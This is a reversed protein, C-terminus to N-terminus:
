MADTSKCDIDDGKSPRSLINWLAQDKAANWEVQLLTLPPGCASGTPRAIVPAPDVFDGRPFPLRIFVTFQTDGSQNLATMVFRQLLKSILLSTHQRRLLYSFSILTDILKLWPIFYLDPV